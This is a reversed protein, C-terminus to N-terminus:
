PATGDPQRAPSREDGLLESLIAGLRTELRADIRSTNTLVQCGGRMMMPDETIVWARESETPALHERVIAADEPHLQVRVERAASPLAGLAERVVGIIQTADQRLERRVLQRALAVALALLEEHVRADLDEFPRALDGLLMDLREVQRGLQERGQALGDRQGQLFGERWAEQQLDELVSATVRGGGPKPGHEPPLPPVNPPESFVPGVDPIVWAEVARAADGAQEATIIRSM